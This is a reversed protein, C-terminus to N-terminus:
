VEFVIQVLYLSSVTTRFAIGLADAEADVADEADLGFVDFIAHQDNILKHLNQAVQDEAVGAGFVAFATGEDFMQGVEERDGTQDDQGVGVGVVGSDVIEV